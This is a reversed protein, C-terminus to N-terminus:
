TEFASVPRPPEGTPQRRLFRMIRLVRLRLRQPTMEELKRASVLPVRAVIVSVATEFDSVLWSRAPAGAVLGSILREPERAPCASV